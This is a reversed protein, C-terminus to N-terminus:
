ESATYFITASVIKSKVYGQERFEDLWRQIGQFMERIGGSARLHASKEEESYIGAYVEMVTYGKDPNPNARLFELIERAKPDLGAEYDDKSITV